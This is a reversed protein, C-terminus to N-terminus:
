EDRSAVNEIMVVRFLSVLMKELLDNAITCIMKRGNLWSNSFCKTSSSPIKWIRQILSFKIENEIKMSFCGVENQM